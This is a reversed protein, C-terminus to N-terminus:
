THREAPKVNENVTIMDSKRLVVDVLRECYMILGDKGHKREYKISVARVM